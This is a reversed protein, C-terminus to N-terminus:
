KERKFNGEGGSSQITKTAVEVANQLIKEATKYNRASIEIRYRPSGVLYIDINSDRTKKAAYAKALADKIIEVGNRKPCTLELVGRVKVRPVKIKELVAENLAKAYNEPVGMKILTEEGKDAIEELGDYINGFREEIKVGVKEYVEPLPLGAKEGVIKLILDARRNKKWELIKEKKERGTVRRLSLDVHGKELDVRLVKLVVKQRERIHDRINKVWSSSLESIHLLGEKGDFEDLMVYAGYPQIKSVTAVVLDGVEPWEPKKQVM